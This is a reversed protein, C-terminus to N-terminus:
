AVLKETSIMRLIAQEIRQVGTGAQRQAVVWKGLDVLFAYAEAFCAAATLEGIKPDRMSTHEFIVQDHNIPASPMRHYRLTIVDGLFGHPRCRISIVEGQDDVLTSVILEVDPPPTLM